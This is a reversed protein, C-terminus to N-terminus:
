PKTETLEPYTWMNTRGPYAARVATVAEVSVPKGTNSWAGRVYTIVDAVQRDKLTAALGPMVGQYATGKVTIPGQLGHLVIRIMKGADTANVLEAGDLPPFAPPIGLGNAQHCAFCTTMYVKKGADYDGLTEPASATVAALPQPKPPESKPNAAAPKPESASAALPTPSESKPSCATLGLALAAIVFLHTSKMNKM